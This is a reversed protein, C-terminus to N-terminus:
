VFFFLVTFKGATVHGKRPYVYVSRLDQDAVWVHCVKAYEKNKEPVHSDM